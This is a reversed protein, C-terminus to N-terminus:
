GAGTLDNWRAGVAGPCATRAVQRHPATLVNPSVDGVWVLVDVLWHWSEVQADTCAEGVGNLFLVGYARHNYGRCHAAQYKGSFEAIRGDQHIVYNYENTRWRNLSRVAGALDANAWKKKTGTYHVMVMGTQEPMLPRLTVHNSTTVRAPLGLETRPIIRHEM